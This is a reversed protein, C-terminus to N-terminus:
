SQKNSRSPPSSTSPIVTGIAKNNLEPKLEIVKVIGDNEISTIIKNAPDALLARNVTDSLFKISEQLAKIQADKESLRAKIIFENDKSKEQLDIIEKLKKQKQDSNNISLLDITKKYDELLEQETPRYYSKSIGTDHDMLLKVNMVKMVQM